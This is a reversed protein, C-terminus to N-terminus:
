TFRKSLLKPKTGKSGFGFKLVGGGRAVNKRSEVGQAGSGADVMRVTGGGRATFATSLAGAESVSAKTMITSAAPSLGRLHSSHSQSEFGHKLMISGSTMSESADPSLGCVFPTVSQSDSDRWGCVSSNAKESPSFGSQRGVGALGSDACLRKIASGADHLAKWSDDQRADM